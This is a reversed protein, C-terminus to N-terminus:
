RGVLGVLGVLGACNLAHTTAIGTAFLSDDSTISM